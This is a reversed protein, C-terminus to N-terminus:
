TWASAISILDVFKNAHADARVEPSDPNFSITRMGVARAGEIEKASHAVFAAQSAAVGLASLAARYIQPEPKLCGLECSSAWAEWLTHVGLKAFWRRKEAEWDHTNTVIGLKLGSAKLARLTDVVGPFLEIDAQADALIRSGQDLLQPDFLGSLRLRARFYDDRALTGRHAETRLAKVRPDSRPVATLGRKALFAAIAVGRRPRSYIVDGADFLLAALPM